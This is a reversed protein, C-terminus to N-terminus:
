RGSCSNLEPRGAKKKDLYGALLSVVINYQFKGDFYIGYWEERCSFQAYGLSEHLVPM